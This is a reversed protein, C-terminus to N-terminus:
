FQLHPNFAWDLSFASVRAVTLHPHIYCLTEEGAKDVLYVLSIVTDDSRTGMIEKPFTYNLASTM